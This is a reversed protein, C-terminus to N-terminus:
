SLDAYLPSVAPARRAESDAGPLFQDYFWQMIPASLVLNRTGWM